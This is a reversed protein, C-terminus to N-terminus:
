PLDALMPPASGPKPTGGFRRAGDMGPTRPRALASVSPAPLPALQFRGHSNDRSDRNDIDENRPKRQVRLVEKRLSSKPARPATASGGSMVAALSQDIFDEVQAYSRRIFHTYYMKWIFNSGLRFHPLPYTAKIFFLCQRKDRYAKQDFVLAEHEHLGDKFVNVLQEDTDFIGLVTSRLTERVSFSPEPFVISVDINARLSKPFDMVYQVGNMFFFNDHRGNMLLYRISPGSFLNKDFMCDDLVVGIRRLMPLDLSGDTKREGKRKSLMVQANCIRDLHEKDYSPYVFCKPIYREYEERTDRSPCFAVCTDLQPGIDRLISQMLATKGSGRQGVVMVTCDIRMMTAPIYEDLAIVEETEM